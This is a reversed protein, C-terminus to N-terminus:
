SGKAKQIAARLKKNEAELTDMRHAKAIYYNRAAQLATELSDIICYTCSLDKAGKLDHEEANHSGEPTPTPTM